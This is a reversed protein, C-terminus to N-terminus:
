NILFEYILITLQNFIENRYLSFVNGILFIKHKVFIDILYIWRLVIQMSWCKMYLLLPGTVIQM